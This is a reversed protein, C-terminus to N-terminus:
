EYGRQAVLVKFMEISMCALGTKSYFLYNSVTRQISIEDKFPNVLLNTTVFRTSIEIEGSFTSM